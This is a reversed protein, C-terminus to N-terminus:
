APTMTGRPLDSGSILFDRDHDLAPKELKPLFVPNRSVSHYSAVAAVATKDETM